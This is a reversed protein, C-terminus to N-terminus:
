QDTSAVICYLFRVQYYAHMEIINDNLALEIVPM